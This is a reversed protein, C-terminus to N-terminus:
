AFFPDNLQHLRCTAFDNPGTWKTEASKRKDSDFYPATLATIVRKELKITQGLKTATAALAADFAAIAANRDAFTGWLTTNPLRLVKRTGKTQYIYLLGSPEAQLLFEKHPDKGQVAPRLHDSFGADKGRVQYIPVFM